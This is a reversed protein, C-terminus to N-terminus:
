ERKIGHRSYFLILQWRVSLPCTSEHGDPCRVKARTSVIIWVPFQIVAALGFRTESWGFLGRDGSSGQEKMQQEVLPDPSKMYKKIRRCALFAIYLWMLWFKLRHMNTNSVLYALSYHCTGTKNMWLLFLQCSIRQKPCLFRVSGSMTWPMMQLYASCSLFLYILPCAFHTYFLSTICYLVYIVKEPDYTLLRNLLDFGAESLTLGGTFSVAPFKDRLRNHRLYSILPLVEM